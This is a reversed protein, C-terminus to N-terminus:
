GDGTSSKVTGVPAVPILGADAAMRRVTGASVPATIGDITGVGVRDELDTLDIRVIITTSPRDSAGGAADAGDGAGGTRGRDQDQDRRRIMGGVIGELATKVPAGTEPGFKGTFLIAGFRDERITLFREERLYRERAEVGDPDLVAEVRVLLRQLDTSTLGPAADVLTREMAAVVAADVRPPLGDLMRTIESGAWVSIRGVGLAEAVAPHKAPMVEGVLGVRAATAEGVVVLKIAESVSAGTTASILNAPTRFGQKRALSDKGLGPRSQRAIEAAVPAYAADVVRRLVGFAENVGMLEGPSLGTPGRDGGARRLADVAAVIGDLTGNM